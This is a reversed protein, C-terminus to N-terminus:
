SQYQGKVVVGDLPIKEGAHVQVVEGVSVEEPYVEIWKGDRLVRAQDPRIDM